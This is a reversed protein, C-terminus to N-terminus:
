LYSRGIIQLWEERTHTQEFIAQHGKKLLMDQAPAKGDTINKHCKHCLTEVFGYKESQKRNGGGYVHHSESATGGCLVCQVWGTGFRETFTMAYRKGRKIPTRNSLWGTRKLPTRRMM